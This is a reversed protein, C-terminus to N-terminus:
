TSQLHTFGIDARGEMLLHKSIHRRILQHAKRGGRFFAIVIWLGALRWFAFTSRNLDALSLEERWNACLGEIWNNQPSGRGGSEDEPVPHHDRPRALDLAVIRKTLDLIAM